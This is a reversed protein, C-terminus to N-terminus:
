NTRELYIIYSPIGTAAGTFGRWGVGSVRVWRVPTGADAEAFEKGRKLTAHRYGVGDPALVTVRRHRTM